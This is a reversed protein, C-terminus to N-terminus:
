LHTTHGRLVVVTADLFADTEAQSYSQLFANGQQLKSLADTETTFLITFMYRKKLDNDAEEAASSALLPTNYHWWGSHYQLAM